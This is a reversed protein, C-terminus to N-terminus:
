SVATESGLGAVAVGVGSRSAATQISVRVSTRTLYQGQEQRMKSAVTAADLVCRNLLSFM